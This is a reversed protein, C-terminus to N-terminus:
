LGWIVIEVLDNNEAFKLLFRTLFDGWIKSQDKLQRVKAECIYNQNNTSYSSAIYPTWFAESLMNQFYEGQEVFM